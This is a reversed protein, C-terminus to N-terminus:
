RGLTSNIKDRQRAIINVVHEDNEGSALSAAVMKPDTVNTVQLNVVPKEAAPVSSPNPTITGSGKPTFLEPGEEGVLYSRNASVPGGTARGGDFPFPDGPQLGPPAGGGGFIASLAQVVLLRAIIRTLDSLISRAFEAFDLKGTEAFEILANTAQDAFVNAIKEGVAALDNAEQKMKLFAREFGDSLANSSELSRLRLDDLRESIQEVLDPRELLAKNLDEEEQRIRAQVDLQEILSKIRGKEAEQLQAREEIQDNRAKEEDTVKALLAILGKLEAKQEATLAIGEHALDREIELKKAAMEGFIARTELLSIQDRLAQTQEEFAKTADAGLVHTLGADLNELAQNYENQTIKGAELLANIAALKTKYEDQPSKIASLADKQATLAKAEAERAAAQKALEEPPILQNTQQAQGQLKALEERLTTLQQVVAPSAGLKDGILIDPRNELDQIQKKINEIGAGISNLPANAREAEDVINRFNSTAGRLFALGEAAKQAAFSLSLLGGTNDAIADTLAGAENRLLTMNQSLTGVTRGFKQEIEPGAAEFAKFIQAATIKGEAGLKRLEGRTIGLGKAIVDAVPTLNELVSRLEDGRLAGSALGQALQIIGAEAESSSVGALAITKNLRETFTIIQQQTKGLEKSSTNLRAFLEVTSETSSRSRDAVQKLKEQLEVVDTGADTVARLKNELNAYADAVQIAQKAASVLSFGVFLRSLLGQLSLGKKEIKDLAQEAEKGGKKAQAPDIIVNVRYDVM